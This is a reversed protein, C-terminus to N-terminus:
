DTFWSLVEQERGSAAAINHILRDYHAEQASEGAQRYYKRLHALCPLYTLHMQTRVMQDETHRQYNLELHELYYKEEVNERLVATNDFPEVSYKLANGVLYMQESLGNKRFFDKPTGASIYAPRKGNQLLQVVLYDAYETTSAFASAAKNPAPMGIQELITKRYSENSAMFWKSVVLVDSRIGAGYQLVWKPIADMDGNAIFIGNPAVTQLANHNWKLNANSYANHELMKQGLEKCQQEDFLPVHHTFLWGYVEPRDSDIEYAQQLAAIATEGEMNLGRIYHYEFTQGIHPKAREIIKDLQAYFVEKENPWPSDPQLQLVSRQAKYYYHWAEANQPETELLECWLTSQEEYYSLPKNEKAIGLIKQPKQTFGICFTFCLALCLIAPLHRVFM